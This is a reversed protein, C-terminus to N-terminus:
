RLRPVLLEVLRDCVAPPLDHGMGEIMVLEAGPIAEATARGAAPPILPDDAGHVVLTPIAVKALAETRDGDALLAHYQRLFGAPNVGRDFGEAITAQLWEEDQPFGPSGIVDRKARTSAIYATRETPSPAFLAQAAEPTAGPLERAGTTSMVSTLTTVRDPSDIAMRQAIMGGMSMGVVHATRVQLHDLLGVADLAMDALSYPPAPMSGASAAALLERVGIAPADRVWTSEGVDRNDFWIVRAGAGTLGDILHPPWAIMQAGLGMVLLVAPGDAPGDVEYRLAIGNTTTTPM